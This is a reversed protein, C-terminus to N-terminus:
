KLLKGRANVRAILYPKDFYGDDIGSLTIAFGYYPAPVVATVLSAKGFAADDRLPTRWLRELKEISLAEIFPTGKNGYEDAAEMTGGLVIQGNEIDLIADQYWSHSPPPAEAETNQMLKGGGSNYKIIVAHTDDGKQEEGLLYYNGEKDPLIKYFSMGKFSVDIKQIKGDNGIIALYSGTIPSFMSDYEINEGSLLWRNGASVYAACRIEGCRAMNVPSQDTIKLFDNFEKKGLEWSLALASGNDRALRVYAFSNHDGISKAGGAALWADDKQAATKYFASYYEPRNSPQLLRRSTGDANHIRAIPFFREGKKEYGAIFYGNGAQIASVVQFNDGNRVEAKKNGGSDYAYRTVGNNVPAFLQITGDAALLPTSARAATVPIPAVWGSEGARHLPRIDSINVGSEDFVFSYIFGEQYTMEGFNLNLQNIRLNQLDRPNERYVITENININSKAESFNIGTMQNRSANRSISVGGTRNNRNTFIIYVPIYSASTDSLGPPTHIEIEQHNIKNDIRYYFNIDKPKLRSLSYSATLPIDFLPFYDEAAEFTNPINVSAGPNLSAADVRGSGRVLHVTFSTKNTFVITGAAAQSVDGPDQKEQVATNKDATACASLVVALCASFLRWLFYPPRKRLIKM